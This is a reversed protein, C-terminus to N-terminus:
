RKRGILASIMQEKTIEGSDIDERADWLSLNSWYGCAAYDIFCNILEDLTAPSHTYGAADLATRIEPEEEQATDAFPDSEIPEEETWLGEPWAESPFHQKM